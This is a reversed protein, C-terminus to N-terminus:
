PIWRIEVLDAVARFEPDGTIIAADLTMATAAALADALSLPYGAKLLAAQWLIELSSSVVRLPLSLLQDALRRAREEGTRRITLHYVEALNVEHLFLEDHKRRAEVLLDEVTQAGPEDQIWAMIAFSDLLSRRKV